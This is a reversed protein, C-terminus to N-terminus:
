MDPVDKRTVADELSVLRLAEAFGEFDVAEEVGKREFCWKLRVGRIVSEEDDCNQRDCVPKM